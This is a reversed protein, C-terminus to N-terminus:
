TGGEECALVMAEKGDRASAASARTEVAVEDSAWMCITMGYGNLEGTTRAGREHEDGPGEARRTAKRAM